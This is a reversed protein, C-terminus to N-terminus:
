LRALKLNAFVSFARNGMASNAGLVAVQAAVFQNEM